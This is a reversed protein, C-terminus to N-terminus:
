DHDAGGHAENVAYTGTAGAIHREVGAAVLDHQPAVPVAPHQLLGTRWTPFRPEFGLERRAKANSAGRQEDALFVLYRGGLLRALFLPVHRPAPAGLAQAYQPLWEGLPAPEDDTINYIGSPASLALVAAAAADDVHVFSWVGRGPGAIPFRGTRVLQAYSGDSAYATGPGYLYGYRLVVGEVDDSELVAAELSHVALVTRRYPRPANLYLEDAETKVWGGRPAYVPAYSQAIVRRVGGARAAELLNRTGEVRLRDNVALQTDIKRADISTPLSTLQDIIVDPREARMLARLQQSDFADVIAGHAGLQALAAAGAPDRSTGLVSHGAQVLQPVLRRGVVGTAGAVLIKM